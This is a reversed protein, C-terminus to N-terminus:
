WNNEAAIKFFGDLMKIDFGFFKYNRRAINIWSKEPSVAGRDVKMEPHYNKCMLTLISTIRSTAELYQNEFFSVNSNVASSLVEDPFVPLVERIQPMLKEAYQAPVLHPSGDQAFSGTNFNFVIPRLLLTVKMFNIIEKTSMKLRQVKTLEFYIYSKAEFFELIYKDIFKYQLVTVINIFDKRVEPRQLLTKLFDFFKMRVEDASMNQQRLFSIFSLDIDRVFEELQLYLDENILEMLASHLLGFIQQWSKGPFFATSSLTPGLQSKNIELFQLIQLEKQLPQQNGLAPNALLRKVFAKSKETEQNMKEWKQHLNM